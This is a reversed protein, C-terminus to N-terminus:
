RGFPVFPQVVGAPKGNWTDTFDGEIVSTNNTSWLVLGAVVLVSVVAGLTRRIIFAFVILVVAATAAAARGTTMGQQFLQNLNDFVNAALVPKM